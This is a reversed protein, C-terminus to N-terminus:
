TCTSRLDRARLLPEPSSADSRTHPLASSMASSGYISRLCDPLTRTFVSVHQLLRLYIVAAAAPGVDRGHRESRMPRVREFKAM